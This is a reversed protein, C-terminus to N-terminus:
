TIITYMTLNESAFVDRNRLLITKKKKKIYLYSLQFLSNNM